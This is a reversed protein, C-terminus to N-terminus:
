DAGINSLLCVTECHGSVGNHIDPSRSFLDM